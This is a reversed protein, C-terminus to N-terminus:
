GIIIWLLILKVPLSALTWWFDAKDSNGDPKGDGDADQGDNVEKQLAPIATTLIPIILLWMSSWVLSTILVIFVGINSWLHNGWFDHMLKDSAPTNNLMFTELKKMLDKM